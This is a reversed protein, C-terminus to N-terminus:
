ISFIDEETKSELERINRFTSRERNIDSPIPMKDPFELITFKKEEDIITPIKHKDRHM